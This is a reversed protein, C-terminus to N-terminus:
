QHLFIKFGRSENIPEYRKYGYLAFPSLDIEVLLENEDRAISISM